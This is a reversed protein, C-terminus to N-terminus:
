GDLLGLCVRFVAGEGLQSEVGITGHHHHVIEQAISLGLGAGAPKDTLNDTIQHFRQFIAAHHEADIGIGWDQIRVEVGDDVATAAVRVRGGAEGFKIANDVLTTWLQQIRARDALVEPLEEEVETEICVGLRAAVPAFTALAEHITSSVDTPQFEWRGGGASIRGLDLVQRVLEDLRRTGALIMDLFEGQVQAPEKPYMRLIEAASRISALPTQIEHSVNTLFHTESRAADLARDRSVAADRRDGEAQAIARRAGGIARNIQAALANWAPDDTKADIPQRLDGRAVRALQEQITQM